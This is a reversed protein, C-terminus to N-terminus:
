LVQFLHFCVQQDADDSRAVHKYALKALWWTFTCRNAVFIAFCGPEEGKISSIILPVGPFFLGKCKHLLLAVGIHKCVVVGLASFFHQLLLIIFGIVEEDDTTDFCGKTNNFLM